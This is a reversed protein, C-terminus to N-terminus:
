RKINRKPRKDGFHVDHFAALFEENKKTKRLLQIFQEKFELSNGLMNNRIRWTEELQESSMLLAEKRNGYKKIDIGPLVRSEALSRSLQLKM